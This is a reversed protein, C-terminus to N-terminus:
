VSEAFVPAASLEGPAVRLFRALWICTLVCALSILGAIPYHTIEQNPGQGIIGGSIWAALGCSFQQVSSNVSMFGGRHRSEVTATMMAMAPVFRGSMCIMLLTSTALAVVLPVRPLNTLAIVPVSAAVSMITFVRLKGARDAWRGIWNMSFLTCLGGTLYIFPLQKETLGVNYVMYTALTPFITFGACTLVAMFLFAMQHNPEILVALMRAAPHTERSHELHGRLPPVCRAVAILIPVSIGAIAYFPVHWNFDSALVLGLPVGLISAVSFASMVLGMAEGRRHEAIVDGVIALIVAGTVGGFMGAIARAAVLLRYTPAMACLFTGTAFGLFLWLLATKRDFHDLFFGAAVGSIGAAIAYAAVILNFQAPTIHMVRMYQPGLPLIILFDLNITFQIAALLLLVLRENQLKM